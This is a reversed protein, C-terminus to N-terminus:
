FMWGVGISPKLLGSSNDKNIFFSYSLGGELYLQKWAFWQYSAEINIQPNVGGTTYKYSHATVEGAQFGVAFGVRANVAMRNPLQKQAVFNVGLTGAQITIENSGETKNLNYWSFFLEAGPVFWWNANYFAGVHVTAGGAYFDNGFVEQMAGHLPILPSWAVSVFLNIKKDKDSQTDDQVVPPPKIELPVWKSPEGSQDLYDYPIIRYRYNGPPLSIELTAQETFQRLYVSYTKGEGREIVVEYKSTYEDGIWVLQQVYRQETVYRGSPTIDQAEGQSDSQKADQPVSQPASQKESQAVDQSDGQTVGQSGGQMNQAWLHRSTFFLLTLILLLLRRNKM